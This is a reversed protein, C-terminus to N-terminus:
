SGEPIPQAGELADTFSMAEDAMAGMYAAVDPDVPIPVGPNDLAQQEVAAAAAELFDKEQM